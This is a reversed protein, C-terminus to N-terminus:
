RYKKNGNQTRELMMKYRRQLKNKTEIDQNDCLELARKYSNLAEKDKNQFAFLAGKTSYSKWWNPKISICKNIATMAEQYKKLKGFCIARNCYAVSIIDVKDAKFKHLDADTIYKYLEDFGDQLHALATTLDKNKMAHNALAATSEFSSFLVDLDIKIDNDDNQINNPSSSQILFM